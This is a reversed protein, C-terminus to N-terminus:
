ETEDISTGAIYSLLRLNRETDRDMWLICVEIELLAPESAVERFKRQWSFGSHKGSGKGEDNSRDIGAFSEELKQQALLGAFILNKSKERLEIGQVLMRTSAMLGMILISISVLVEVLTFSKCRMMLLRKPLYRIM